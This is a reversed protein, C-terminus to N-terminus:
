FCSVYLKGLPVSLLCFLMCLIEIKYRMTCCVKWSILNVEGYICSVGMVVYFLLCDLFKRPMINLTTQGSGLMIHHNEAKALAITLLAKTDKSFTRNYFVLLLFM